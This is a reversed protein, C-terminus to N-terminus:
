LQMELVKMAHAVVVRLNCPRGKMVHLKMKSAPGPLADWFANIGIVERMPTGANPYAFKVLKARDRGM